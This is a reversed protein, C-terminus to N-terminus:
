SEAEALAEEVARALDKEMDYIFLRKGNVFIAPTSSLGLRRAEQESRAVKDKTEQSRFCSKFTAEDLDLAKALTIPSAATLKRQREFALDHYNWFKGQKDACVAGQAVLRSIGSRNIPFDMYVVKLKGDFQKLVRKIEESATKCHPCQYDAFEVITVKASEAGKTPFGDTAIQVVPAIPQPLLIKFDNKEKFAALLEAKKEKRSEERVFRAIQERVQKYPKSIRRKNKDYFERLSKEDPVRVALLENRVAEATTKRREAEKEVVIDFLADDILQQVKQYHDNDLEYLALQREASLESESYDFGDVQFLMRDAALAPIAGYGFLLVAFFAGVRSVSCLRM